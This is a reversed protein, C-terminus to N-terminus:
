LILHWNRFFELIRPLIILHKIQFLILTHKCMGVGKGNGDSDGDFNLMTGITFPLRVPQIAM